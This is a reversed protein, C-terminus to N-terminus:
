AGKIGYLAFQSNQAFNGANQVLVVSDIASTSRWLGSYLSVKGSGNADYGTLCIPLACTQVGTV